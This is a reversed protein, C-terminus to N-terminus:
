RSFGGQMFWVITRLVYVSKLYVLIPAIPFHQASKNWDKIVEYDHLIDKQEKRSYRTWHSVDNGKKKAMLRNANNSVLKDLESHGDENKELMKCIADNFTM